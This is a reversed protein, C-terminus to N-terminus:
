EQRDYNYRDLYPRCRTHIEARLAYPCAHPTPRHNSRATTYAAIAPAVPAFEGLSLQEYVRRVEAPPDRLLDEYRVDILRDPGLSGRTAELRDHMHVFTDLVRDALGDLTPHQYGQGAYLSAWMRMTSVLVHCPNRVMNVFRANPFMECLVPLRCTHPPSKLVLRGPRMSVVERYFRRVVRQWRRRQRPSVAALDPDLDLFARDHPAHNPFAISLYPSPLGLNCLAFEDEQPLDWDMAMADQPRRAPLTFRTLTKLWGETLVFHNPNFCEFTNPYVHREDLTLLEHMWTTGTRWHGIVFIPDDGLKTRAIRGACLVSQVGRLLSNFAGVGLDVTADLWYAPSIAFHNRALLRALAFFNAGTWIAAEQWRPRPYM